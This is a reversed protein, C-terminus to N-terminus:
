AVLEVQDTELELPTQRGLMTLLVRLRGNDPARMIHGMFGGFPGEVVRVENGAAYPDLIPKAAGHAQFRLVGDFGAVFCGQAESRRLEDIVRPPVRIPAGCTRVLAIVGHTAEIEPFREHGAAQGVFVYKPFVSREVHVIRGRRRMRKRWTPAYAEFGNRTLWAIAVHESSSATVAICWTRDTM